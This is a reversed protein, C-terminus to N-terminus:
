MSGDEQVGSGGSSPCGQGEGALAHTGQLPVPQPGSPRCARRCSLFYLCLTPSASSGAGGGKWCLLGGKASVLKVKSRHGGGLAVTKALRCGVVGTPETKWDLTRAPGHHLLSVRGSGPRPEALGVCPCGPEGGASSHGGKTVSLGLPCLPRRPSLTGTVPRAKPKVALFFVM